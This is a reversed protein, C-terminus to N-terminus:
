KIDREHVHSLMHGDVSIFCIKNNSVTYMTQINNNECTRYWLPCRHCGNIVKDFTYMIWMWLESNAPIHLDSSKM